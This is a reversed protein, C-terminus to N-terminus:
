AENEIQIIINPDCCGVCQKTKVDNETDCRDCNIKDGIM